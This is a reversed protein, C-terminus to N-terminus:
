SETYIAGPFTEEASKRGKFVPVALLDEFIHRYAELADEVMKASEEKTTHATHGEQWM